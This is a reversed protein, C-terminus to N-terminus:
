EEMGKVAEIIVQEQKTTLGFQASINSIKEYINDLKKCIKLKEELQNLKQLTRKIIDLVAQRSTKTNEAIESISGNFNVYSNLIQQQKKTLLGGYIDLLRANKITEKLNM